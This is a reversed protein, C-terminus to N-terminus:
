TNWIYLHIYFLIKTDKVINIIIRIIIIYYHTYSSFLIILDKYYLNIIVIRGLVIEIKLGHRDNLEIM